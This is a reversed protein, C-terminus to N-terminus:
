DPARSYSQQLDSMMRQMQLNQEVILFPYPARSMGSKYSSPVCQELMDCCVDIDLEVMSYLKDSQM